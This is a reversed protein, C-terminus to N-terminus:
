GENKLKELEELEKGLEGMLMDIRREKEAILKARKKAKIEKVVDEALDLPNDDISEEIVEEFIDELSEGSTDPM